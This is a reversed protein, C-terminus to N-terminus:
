GYANHKFGLRFGPTINSMSMEFDMSRVKRVNREWEM